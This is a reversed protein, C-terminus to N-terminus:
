KINIITTHFPCCHHDCQIATMRVLHQFMECHCRDYERGILSREGSDGGELQWGALGTLPLTSSTM